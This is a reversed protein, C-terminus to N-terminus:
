LFNRVAANIDEFHEFTPALGTLELVQRVTENVGSLKLAQGGRSMEESVEVLVELGRSDIFAIESADLVFRGLNENVAQIAQSKFQDADSRTLPGDPRFVMVAGHQQQHLKM